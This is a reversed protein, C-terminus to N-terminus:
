VEVEERRAKPLLAEKHWDLGRSGQQPRPARLKARPMHVGEEESAHDAKAQAEM